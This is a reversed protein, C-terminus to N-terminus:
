VNRFLFYYIKFYIEFIFFLNLSYINMHSLIQIKLM